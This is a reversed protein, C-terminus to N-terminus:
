VFKRHNGTGKQMKLHFSQLWTLFKDMPYSGKRQRSIVGEVGGGGERREGWGM